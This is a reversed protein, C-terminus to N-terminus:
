SLRPLVLNPDTIDLTLLSSHSLYAYPAYAYQLDTPM